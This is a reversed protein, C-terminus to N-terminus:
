LESAAVWDCKTCRAGAYRRDHEDDSAEFGKLDEAGTGCQPCCVFVGAGWFEIVNLGAEDIVAQVARLVSTDSEIGLLEKAVQIPTRQGRADIHQIHAVLTPLPSDDLLIPILRSTARTMLNMWAANLENHVWSSAAAGSSWLLAFIDFSALAESIAAPISDGPRIKWSDFWVEAGALQMAGALREAWAKDASNHSLFVRTKSM